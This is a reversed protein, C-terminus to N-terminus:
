RRRRLRLELRRGRAFELSLWSLVLIVAAMSLCDQWFRAPTPIASNM